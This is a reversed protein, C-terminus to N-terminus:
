RLQWGSGRHVFRDIKSDFEREWEILFNSIDRVDVLVKMQTCTYFKETSYSDPLDKVFHMMLCMQVQHMGNFCVSIGFTSM